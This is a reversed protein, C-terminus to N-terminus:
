VCLPSLRRLMASSGTLPLCGLLVLTGLMAVIAVGSMVVVAVFIMTTGPTVLHVYVSTQADSRKRKIFTGNEEVLYGKPHSQYDCLSGHVLGTCQYKLSPYYVAAGLPWLRDDKSPATVNPIIGPCSLTGTGDWGMFVAYRCVASQLTTNSNNPYTDDTRLENLPRDAVTLLPLLPFAPVTNNLTVNAHHFIPVDPCLATMNLTYGNSSMNAFPKLKDGLDGGIVDAARQLKLPLWGLGAPFEDRTCWLAYPNPRPERYGILYTDSIDHDDFVSESLMIFCSNAVSGHSADQIGGKIRDPNLEAILSYNAVYSYDQCTVDSEVGVSFREKNLNAVVPSLTRKVYLAHSVSGNPVNGDQFPQNIHQYAFASCPVGVESCPLNACNPEPLWVGSIILGAAAFALLLSALSFALHLLGAKVVQERWRPNRRRILLVPGFTVACISAASFVFAFGNMCVHFIFLSYACDLWWIDPGGPPTIYGACTHMDGNKDISNNFLMRQPANCSYM